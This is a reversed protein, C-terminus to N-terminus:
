KTCAQEALSEARAGDRDRLARQAAFMKDMDPQTCDTLLRRAGALAADNADLALLRDTAAILEPLRTADGRQGALRATDWARQAAPWYRGAVRAQEIRAALAGLQEAIAHARAGNDRADVAMRHAKAFDDLELQRSAEKLTHRADELTSAAYTEGGAAQAAQLVDRADAMQQAPPTACGVVALLAYMAVLLRSM